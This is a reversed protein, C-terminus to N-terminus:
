KMKIQNADVVQLMWRAFTVAWSADPPNIAQGRLVQLRLNNLTYIPQVIQPASAAKTQVLYAADALGLGQVALGLETSLINNLILSVAKSASDIALYMNGQALASEAEAVLPHPDIARSLQPTQDLKAVTIGEPPPSRRLVGVYILTVVLIVAVSAVFWETLAIPDNSFQLPSIVPLISTPQRRLSFSNVSYRALRSRGAFNSLDGPRIFALCFANWAFYDV